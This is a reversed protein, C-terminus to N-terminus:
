EEGRMIGEADESQAGCGGSTACGDLSALIIERKGPIDARITASWTGGFLTLGLVDLDAMARDIRRAISAVKKRDVGALDCSKPYNTM